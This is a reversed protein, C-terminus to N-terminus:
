IRKRQHNEFRSCFTGAGLGGVPATTWLRPRLGGSLDGLMELGSLPSLISSPLMRPSSMREGRQPEASDDNAEPPQCGRSRVKAGVPAPRAAQRRYERGASEYSRFISSKPSSWSHDPIFNSLKKQAFGELWEADERGDSLPILDAVASQGRQHLARNKNGKGFRVAADRDRKQVHRRQFDHIAASPRRRASSFASLMPQCRDHARQAFLRIM